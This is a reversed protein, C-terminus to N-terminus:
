TWWVRKISCNSKNALLWGAVIDSPIQTGSFRADIKYQGSEKKGRDVWEIKGGDRKYRIVCGGPNSASEHARRLMIAVSDANFTGSNPGLNRMIRYVTTPPKELAKKIAKAETEASSDKKGDFSRNAGNAFVFLHGQKRGVKGEQNRVWDSFVEGARKNEALGNDPIHVAYMSAKGVYIVGICGRIATIGVVVNDHGYCYMNAFYM